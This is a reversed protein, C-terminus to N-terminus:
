AIERTINNVWKKSKFRWLAFFFKVFDDSNMICYVIIPPVGVVLGLVASLPLAYLYLPAMDLAMGIRVDGGARFTGAISTMDFDRFPLIFASFYLMLSAIERAEASLPLLPLIHPTVVTFNLAALLVGATVGYLFSLLTLAAGSRYIQERSTGAGSERGIIVSTTIALSLGFVNVFGEINRAMSLAAIAPASSEMYGFVIPYLMYGVAWFVENLLVPTSYKVFDRLIVIGPRLLISLRMRFRSFKAAHLTVLLFEIIRALLTALAAGEVGMAPAGLNGFILIWNFFTNLSVSTILVYMGLKPNEMSRQAGIYVMSMINLLFSFTVIQAYRAAIDVLEGNSSLVSMIEHPFISVSGTVPLAVALAVGFAIGLVRNITKEDKKGWYQSILVSSGSQLGFTLVTLLFFPTGALMLAALENEGLFGVMFTDLLLMCQNILNQIMLPLALKILNKYFGSGMNLTKLM